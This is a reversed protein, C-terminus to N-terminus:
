FHKWTHEHKAHQGDRPILGVDMQQDQVNIKNMGLDSDESAYGLWGIVYEANEYIDKMLAIQEGKEALSSQDISVPWDV